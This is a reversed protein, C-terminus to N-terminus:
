ELKIECLKWDNYQHLMQTFVFKCESGECTCSAACTVFGVGDVPGSLECRNYQGALMCKNSWGPRIIVQFHSKACVLRHGSISVKFSKRIEGPVPSKIVLGKLWCDDQPEPEWLSIDKLWTYHDVHALDLCTAPDGDNLRM